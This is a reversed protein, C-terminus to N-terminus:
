PHRDSGERTTGAEAPGGDVPRPPIGVVDDPGREEPPDGVEEAPEGRRGAGPVREDRVHQPEGGQEPGVRHVAVEEVLFGLRERAVGQVPHPGALSEDELPEGVRDRRRLGLARHARTIGALDGDHQEQDGLGGHQRVARHGVEDVLLGGGRGGEVRGAASAIEGRRRVAGTVDEHDAAPDGPRAHGQVGRRATEPHGQDLRLVEGEPRAPEARLEDVAAQPVERRAVHRRRALTRPLPMQQHRHDRGVEDTRESLQEREGGTDAAALPPGPRRPHGHAVEEPQLRARARLGEGPRVGDPRRLRQAQEGGQVGASQAAAHDRVVALQGIVGGEDDRDRARRGTEARPDEGPDAGLPQVRVASCRRVREGAFADIDPRPRDDVGGPHPRRGEVVAEGQARAAAGVDDQVSRIEAIRGRRQGDR